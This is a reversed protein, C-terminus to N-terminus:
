WNEKNLGNVADFDDIYIKDVEIEMSKDMDIKLLSDQEEYVPINTDETIFQAISKKLFINCLYKSLIFEIESTIDNYEPEYCEHLFRNLESSIQELNSIVVTRSKITEGWDLVLKFSKINHDNGNFRKFYYIVINKDDEFTEFGKFSKNILNLTTKSLKLINVEMIKDLFPYPIQLCTPLNPENFM